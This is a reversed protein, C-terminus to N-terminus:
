LLKGLTLLDGQFFFLGSMREPDNYVELMTWQWGGDETYKLMELQRFSHWLAGITTIRITSGGVVILANDGYPVARHNQRERCMPPINEWASDPNKLNLVEANALIGEDIVLNSIHRYGGTAVIFGAKIYTLCYSHRPYNM